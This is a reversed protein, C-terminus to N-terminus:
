NSGILFPDNDNISITITLVKDMLATLINATQFKVSSAECQGFKLQGDSCLAESLEFKEGFLEANTIVERGDVSISIQKDSSDLKFLENYDAM